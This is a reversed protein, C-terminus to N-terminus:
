WMGIGITNLYKVELDMLHDVDHDIETNKMKRIQTTKMGETESEESTDGEPQKGFM